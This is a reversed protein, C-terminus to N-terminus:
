KVTQKKNLDVSKVKYNLIRDYIKDRESLSDFTWAITCNSISIFVILYQKSELDKTDIGFVQILNVPIHEKYHIFKNM